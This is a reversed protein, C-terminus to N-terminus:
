QPHHDIHYICPMDSEDEISCMEEWSYYHSCKEKECEFRSLVVTVENREQMCIHVIADDVSNLCSYGAKHTDIVMRHALNIITEIAYETLKRNESAKSLMNSILLTSINDSIKKELSKQSVPSNLILLKKASFLKQPSSFFRSYSGAESARESSAYFFFMM